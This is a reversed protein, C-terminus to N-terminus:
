EVCPGTDKAAVSDNIFDLYEKGIQFKKLCGTFGSHHIGKTVLAIDPVGGSVFVTSYNSLITLLHSFSFFRFAMKIFLEFM